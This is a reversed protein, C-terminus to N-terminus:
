RGYLRERKSFDKFAGLIHEKTLAPAYCNPTYIKSNGGQISMFGSLRADGPSTRIIVDPERYQQKGNDLIERLTTADFQSFDFNQENLDKIGRVVEDIGDYDIALNLVYQSYNASYKVIKDIKALLPAPLVDKRGMHNVQIQLREVDPTIIDIFDGFLIMLNDIEDQSRKWNNVSFFWLTLTNVGLDFAANMIRPATESFCIKHGYQPAKGLEKAWRRNGDLIIALHNLDKPREIREDRSDCELPIESSSALSMPESGSFSPSTPRSLSHMDTSLYLTEQAFCSRYARPSKKRDVTPRIVVDPPIFNSPSLGELAGPRSRKPSSTNRNDVTTWMLGDQPILDSPLLAVGPRSRKPSSTTNRSEELTFTIQVPKEPKKDAGWSPMTPLWGLFIVLLLYKNM